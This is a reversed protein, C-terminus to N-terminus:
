GIPVLRMVDELEVLKVLELLGVHLLRDLYIRWGRGMEMLISRRMMRGNRRPLSSLSKLYGEVRLQYDLLGLILRQSFQNEMV